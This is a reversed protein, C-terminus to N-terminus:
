SHPKAAVDDRLYVPLAQEAAVILGHQFCSVALQVISAAHPYQEGWYRDVPLRQQLQKAYSAWGSGCGYWPWQLPSQIHTANTVLEPTCVQEAVLLKVGNDHDAQYLGWYVEGMRADIAAAIHEVNQQQATAYALAALTSIPIVPLDAAYAIGQTVSTAIRIGTFAGPGRGFAIADLQALSIAAEALLSDLMPLILAAHKRPAYEYRTILENDYFLAASCAETSTDLALIRLSM